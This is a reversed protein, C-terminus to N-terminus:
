QKVSFWREFISRQGEMGLAPAFAGRGFDDALRLVNEFTYDTLEECVGGPVDLSSTWTARTSAM